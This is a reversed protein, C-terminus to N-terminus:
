GRCNSPRTARRRRSEGGLLRGAFIQQEFVRGGRDDADVRQGLAGEVAAAVLLVLLLRLALLLISRARAFFCTAVTASLNQQYVIINFYISDKIRSSSAIDQPSSACDNLCFSSRQSLQRRSRWKPWRWSSGCQRREVGPQSAPVSLLGTEQGSAGMQFCALHVASTRHM